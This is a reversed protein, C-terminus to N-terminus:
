SVSPRGHTAPSCALDRLSQQTHATLSSLITSDVPELCSPCTFSRMLWDDVCAEHFSHMCPLFRVKEGCEFDVMCIACESSRMDANFEDAPIQELLRRIRQRQADERIKSEDAAARQRAVNAVYLQNVYASSHPLHMVPNSFSTADNTSDLSTTRGPNDRGTLNRSMRFLVPLCNGM